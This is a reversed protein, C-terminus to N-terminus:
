GRPGIVEVRTGVPTNKYLEHADYKTLRNCGHSASQGLDRYLNRSTAHIFHGGLHRMSWFMHVKFLKSYHDPSKELVKYVGAHDHPKKPHVNRPVWYYNESSTTLYIHIIERDKQVYLRQDTRKHLDLYIGDAKRNKLIAPRFNYGRETSAVLKGASDYGNAKVFFTDSDIWPVKWQVFGNDAPVGDSIVDRFVGRPVAGVPTREGYVIIIVKDVGKSTWTINYKSGETLVDSDPRTISISQAHASASVFLILVLLFTYRLYSCKM